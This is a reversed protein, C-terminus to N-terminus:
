IIDVIGPLTLILGFIMMEAFIAAAYAFSHRVSVHTHEWSEDAGAQMPRRYLCTHSCYFYPASYYGIHRFSVMAQKCAAALQQVGHPTHAAFCRFRPCAHPLINLM